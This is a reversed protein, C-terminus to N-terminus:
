SFYNDVQYSEFIPEDGDKAVFDVFVDETNSDRLRVNLGYRAGTTGFSYYNGNKKGVRKAYSFGLGRYGAFFGISTTIPPQLRTSWYLSGGGDVEFGKGIFYSEDMESEVSMDYGQSKSRLVVRWPKDPVEIYAPDYKRATSSDLRAQLANWARLFKNEKQASVSLSCVTLLAFLYLRM